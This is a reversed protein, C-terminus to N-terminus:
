ANVRHHTLLDREHILVDDVVKICNPVGQLAIDGRLCFTDGTVACKM